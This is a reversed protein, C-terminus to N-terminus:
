ARGSHNWWSISGSRGAASIWTRSIPPTASGATSGPAPAPPSRLRRRTNRARYELRAVERAQNGDRVLVDRLEVIEGEAGPVDPYRVTYTRFSDPERAIVRVQAVPRANAWELEPEGYVNGENWVWDVEPYTYAPDSPLPEVYVRAWPDTRIRLRAGEAINGVVTAVTAPAVALRGVPATGASAVVKPVPVGAHMTLIHGLVDGAVTAGHGRWAGEVGGAPQWQPVILENIKARSPQGGRRHMQDIRYCVHRVQRASGDPSPLLLDHKEVSPDPSTNVITRWLRWDQHNEWRRGAGDPVSPNGPNGVNSTLIAGHSLNVKNKRRKARIQRVLWGTQPTGGPEADVGRLPVVAAGSAHGVAVTGAWGRFSVGTMLTEGSKGFYHVRENDIQVEGTEDYEDIDEVPIRDSTADIDDTLISPRYPGLDVV